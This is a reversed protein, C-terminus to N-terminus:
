EPSPYRAKIEAVKDLWQQMTAEGRQAKFFLPDSEERYADARLRDAVAAVEEASKNTVLWTQRWVGGVLEPTGEALMQAYTIEPSPSPEVVTMNYADLVEDDFESPFSTNRYEIRLDAFTYPYKEVVGEVIKAYM